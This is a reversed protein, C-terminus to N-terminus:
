RVWACTARPREFGKWPFKGHVRLVLQGGDRDSRGHGTGGGQAGGHSGLLLQQLNGRRLELAEVGMADVGAQALRAGLDDVHDCLEGLQALVELFLAVRMVVEGALGIVGERGLHGAAVRDRVHDVTGREGRQAVAAQSAEEVLDLLSGVAHDAREVLQHGAEDGAGFLLRLHADDVHHGLVSTGVRKDGHDLQLGAGAAQDRLDGDRGQEQRFGTVDGGVLRREDGLFARADRAGTVAGSGGGSM